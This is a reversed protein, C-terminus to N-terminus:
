IEPAVPRRVNKLRELVTIRAQLQATIRNLRKTQESQISQFEKLAMNQELESKQERAEALNKQAIQVKSQMEAAVSKWEELAMERLTKAADDFSQTELDPFLKLVEESVAPDIPTPSAMAQTVPLAQSALSTSVRLIARSLDSELAAEWEPALQPMVETRRGCMVSLGLYFMGGDAGSFPLVGLDGAVSKVASDTQPDSHIVKLKGDAVREYEALLLEVRSVFGRFSESLRVADSPSFLRIEVPSNLSQMIAKTSDSLVVSDSGQGKAETKDGKQYRVYWGWSVVLGLVFALVLLVLTRSSDGKSKPNQPYSNTNDSASTRM